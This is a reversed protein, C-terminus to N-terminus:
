EAFRRRFMMAGLAFMVGGMAVMVLVPALLDAAPQGNMVMRWGQLVWGQPTFRALAAFAAPMNPISVTFLGGLMGLTTLGAGLVPGAQRSTKVVAILLVGLGTAAIVQGVLVLGAGAPDGWNVGFAFHSAAMLVLGQLIVTLFVALFKGTLIATLLEYSRYIAKQGAADQMVSEAVAQAVERKKEADAPVLVESLQDHWSAEIRQENIHHHLFEIFAASVPFEKDTLKIEVGM